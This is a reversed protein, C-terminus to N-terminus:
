WARIAWGGIGSWTMPEGVRSSARGRSSIRGSLLAGIFAPIEDPDASGDADLTILIDGKAAAFGARLAAGKGPRQEDVVIIKPILRRAVEITADNSRGDVLIVEDVWASIRPLVHPLNEAENLTPVIVSIKPRARDDLHERLDNRARWENRLLM